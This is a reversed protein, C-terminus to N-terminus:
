WESERRACDACAWRDGPFTKTTAAKCCFECLYAM